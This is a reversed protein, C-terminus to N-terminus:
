SLYFYTLDRSILTLANFYVNLRTFKASLFCLNSFIREWVEYFIFSMINVQSMQVRKRACNCFLSCFNKWITSRTNFLYQSIGFHFISYFPSGYRPDSSKPRPQVLRMKWLFSVQINKNKTNLFSRFNKCCYTSYIAHRFLEKWHM